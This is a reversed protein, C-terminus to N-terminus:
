GIVFVVIGGAVVRLRDRCYNFYGAFSEMFGIGLGCGSGFKM